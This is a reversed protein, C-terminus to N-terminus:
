EFTNLLSLLREARAPSSGFIPLPEPRNGVLFAGPEADTPPTFVADYLLNAGREPSKFILPRLLVRLLWPTGAGRTMKTDNGGPDVSYVSIGNAALEPAMLHTWYSLALKSRAYPGRWKSFTGGERLDTETFDPVAKAAGSSTNIVTARESQRLLPRLTQLLLYPALTNVAFHLELGRETRAPHDLLIGANNVLVDIKDFTQRIETAVRGVAEPDSLDAYFYHFRDAGPVDDLEARRAEHRLILAIEHGGEALRRTLLKGIGTHGGTIVFRM